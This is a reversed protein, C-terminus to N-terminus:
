DVFEVESIPVQVDGTRDGHQWEFRIHTITGEVEVQEGNLTLTTRVRKKSGPQDAQSQEAIAPPGPDPQDTGSNPIAPEPQEPPPEPPQEIMREVWTPNLTFRVGKYGEVAVRLWGDSTIRWIRASKGTWNDEGHQRRLIRVRDGIEFRFSVPAEAQADLKICDGVKFDNAPALEKQASSELKEPAQDLEASQHTADTLIESQTEPETTPPLPEILPESQSQPEPVSPPQVPIPSEEEDVVVEAEVDITHHSRIQKALAYTITEGQFAKELAEQRAEEPTSPRALLYLASAAIDVQRLNLCSFREAVQIFRTAAQHSWAFEARLWKRFSGYGLQARVEVLNQGIAVTDKASRRILRKLESTKRLVLTRTKSDLTRYDFAQPKPLESPTRSNM